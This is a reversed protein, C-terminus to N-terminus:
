APVKISIGDTVRGVAEGSSTGLKEVDQQILRSCLPVVHRGGTAEVLYLEFFCLMWHCEVGAFGKRCQAIYGRELTGRGQLCLLLQM